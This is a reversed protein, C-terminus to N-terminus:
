RTTPCPDPSPKWTARGPGAAGASRRASLRNSLRWPWSQPPDPSRRCSLTSTRCCPPVPFSWWQLWFSSTAACRRGCALQTLKLQVRQTQKRAASWNIGIGFVDRRWFEPGVIATLVNLLAVIALGENPGNILGLRLQLM